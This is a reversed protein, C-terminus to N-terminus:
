EKIGLIKRGNKTAVNVLEDLHYYHAAELLVRLDMWMDANNFPMWIDAINDTGLGVTIGRPIMEDIPTVPNHTPTLVESRRENLWSVPCAIFMMEAEKVLKYVSERYELPHANISISHIGVVRGQLAHEITKRALLETEKEEPTNLEDIHVHVMKGLRKATGLLIDLHEPARDVDAKLLGGIIDVFEAGVEFWKRSEKADNFLGNSSQNLFKITMDSKYKERVRQAAQIAKDKVNCDVDIFSGLSTVGQELMREIAKAMRDYIQDVTSNRRLEDNLTWKESRLKNALAYNEETITYARDIHAHSNTWGGNAAIKQLLTERLDWYTPM